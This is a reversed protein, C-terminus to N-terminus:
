GNSVGVNLNSNGGSAHIYIAMNVCSWPGVVSLKKQGRPPNTMSQITSSLEDPSVGAEFLERCAKVWKDNNHPLIKTESTFRDSLLGVAGDTDSETLRNDTLRNDTSQTVKRLPQTVNDYYQQQQERKRKQAMREAPTSASQRKIFNVVFWGSAEPIIIPPDTHSIQELDGQLDDTPMRLMWALQNTPPLHGDPYLKKCILFLEITRRWLRDPLTAMKPDDLIEIYIKAWYDAM